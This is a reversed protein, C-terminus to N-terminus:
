RPTAGEPEGVVALKISGRWSGVRRVEPADQNIAAMAQTLAAHAADDRYFMLHVFWSPDALQRLVTAGNLGPLESFREYGRALWDIVRKAGRLDIQFAVATLLASSEGPRVHSMVSEYTGEGIGDRPRPLAMFHEVLERGHERESGLPEDAARRVVVLGDASPPEAFAVWTSRGPYLQTLRTSLGQANKLFETQQAPAV